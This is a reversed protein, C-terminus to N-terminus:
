GPLTGETPVRSVPTTSGEAWTSDAERAMFDENEWENEPGPEQWRRRFILASAGVILALALALLLAGTM